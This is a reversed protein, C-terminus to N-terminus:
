LQLVINVLDNHAWMVSEQPEQVRFISVQQSRMTTRVYDNVIRVYAGHVTDHYPWYIHKM